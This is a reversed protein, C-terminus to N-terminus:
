AVTYVPYRHGRYTYVLRGTAAEWIQVTTDYSASAIYSGDPSWAVSCIRDSHGSYKVIQRGTAVEWVQVTMDFSGSAIYKGDPSCALSIVWNNHGRYTQQLRRTTANWIWVINDDGCAAILKGGPLWIVAEVRQHLDPAQFTIGNLGKNADFAKVQGNWNGMVLRMGNPSWAVGLVGNGTNDTFITGGLNLSYDPHPGGLVVTEALWTLTGTAAVLGAYGAIKLLTRRSFTSKQQPIHQSTLHQLEQRVIGM